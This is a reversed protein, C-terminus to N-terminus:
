WDERFTLYYTPSAYGRLEDFDDGGSLATAATITGGEGVKYALSFYGQLSRDRLSMAVRGFFTLDRVELPEPTHLSTYVLDQSPVDLGPRLYRPLNEGVLFAQAGTPSVFAEKVLAEEDATYAADSRIREFRVISRGVFDYKLGLVALTYLKDSDTKTRQFEVVGETLPGRPTNVTRSTVNPYWARSGKQHAADGYLALGDWFPVSVNFYEGVWAREHARTGFVLGLYDAGNNWSIEPKFLGAEAFAEEASFPAVDRNEKTELMIVASFAKGATLNIRAM